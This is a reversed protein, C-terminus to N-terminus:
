RRLATAKEHGRRFVEDVNRGFRGLKTADRPNLLRHLGPGDTIEYRKIAEWTMPMNSQRMSSLLKRALGSGMAHQLKVLRWFIDSGPPAWPYRKQALDAYHRVLEIGVKVSYDPDTTLRQHDFKMMASEERSVQFFGREDLPPKTVEDICGDSEVAIWGLLFELPIGGRYRDIMPVLLAWRNPDRPKSKHFPSASPTGTATAAPPAEGDAPAAAARLLVPRVLNDRIWVWEQAAQTEDRAIQRGGREPHRAYFVVDTLRNTNREGGAFAAAGEAIGRVSGLLASVAGLPGATPADEAPTGPHPGAHADQMEYQIERSRGNKRAGGEYSRAGAFSRRDAPERAARPVNASADALVRWGYNRPIDWHGLSSAEVRYWDALGAGLEPLIARLLERSSRRTPRRYFVRLAGGHAPMYARAARPEAPRLGARDRRIHRRAWDALAGSDWYLADFVHVEDPNHHRLMRLLALGGGSHATLILRGARPMAIGVTAAFQEVSFQVLRGLGDWRGDSGDLAPFTAVFLGSANKAGSFDGRPLVTLTPRSRGRGVAGEVPALDLGSYREIGRTITPGAQSFGHLHVVVDIEAPGSAMDNWRLVLAPSRGRHRALVPVSAVEHRGARVGAPGVEGSWPDAMGGPGSGRVGATLAQRGAQPTVAAGSAAPPNYEWHWPEAEYPYFGFRQANAVLWLYAPLRRLTAVNSSANRGGLYFDIARGSQHASSGPPAVWRRAREPTGYRDLAQRYLEAQRAGSRYGSAPLLLPERLGEARAADVLAAWAQAAFRQLPIPRNVGKVTVIDAPAPDRKDRIRGGGPTEVAVPRFVAAATAPAAGTGAQPPGAPGTAGAPAAAARLPRVLHDRISVWERGLAQEGSQIQRGGREPHRGHFVLNTLTNEDTVGQRLALQVAASEGGRTLSAREAPIGAALEGLWGSQHGARDPWGHGDPEPSAARSRASRPSM